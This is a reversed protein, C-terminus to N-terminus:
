PKTKIIPYGAPELIAGIQWQGNAKALLVTFYSGKPSTWLEYVAGDANTIRSHLISNRIIFQPGGPGTESKEITYRSAEYAMRRNTDHLWTVDHRADLLSKNYPFFIKDVLKPDPNYSYLWDNYTILKFLATRASDSSLPMPPEPLNKAFSYLGAPPHWGTKVATPKPAAQTATTPTTGAAAFTSTTAASRPGLTSSTPMPFAHSM